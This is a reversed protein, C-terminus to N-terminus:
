WSTSFLRVRADKHRKSVIKGKADIQNWSGSTTPPNFAFDIGGSTVPLMGASLLVFAVVLVLVVSGISVPANGIKQEFVEQALLKSCDTQNVSCTALLAIIAIRTM